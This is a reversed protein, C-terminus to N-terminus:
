AILSDLITEAGPTASPLALGLSRMSFVREFWYAFRGYTNTLTSTWSDGLILKTSGSFVSAFPGGAYLQQAPNFALRDVYVSKGNDIATSLRVRLRLVTPLIAPTRFAGSFNVWATTATTLTRTALNPTASDDNVVTNTGDTLAVELVGATPTASVKLWLSFHYVTDAKLKAPTGGGGAVTSSATNFPQYVATLTGGVDGALQLVATGDYANGSGGNLIQTGVTGTLQVFNDPYNATTFAEFSGNTLLNDATNNQQADVANLTAGVGSGLPWNYALADVSAYGKVSFPERGLTATGQSDGTCAFTLVEPFATDLTQGKVSKLSLVVAPNGNPTGVATQAGAAVTSGRVTAVAARMQSILVGLATPLDKTSLHVDADAMDIVTNQAFTRLQGLFGASSGQWSKLQSWIGEITSQNAPAANYAAQVNGARTVWSAGSLTRATAAGGQVALIDEAGAFLYGLRTYLGASGTLTIAM